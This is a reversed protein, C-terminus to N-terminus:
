FSGINKTWKLADVYANMFRETSITKAIPQAELKGWDGMEFNIIYNLMERIENEEGLLAKKVADTLPLGKLIDVLSRNLIVDMLSFIGTFFYDFVTARHSIGNCLLSMLKARILSQKVMEANESNQFDKLMMLSIWQYVERTGLLNLAQHISSIEYRPSVYASNVLRLLKYSLGLDIEIIESIKRHSPDPLNLEEIIRILNTNIIGIDKSNLVSPRSFFYGQFLQYGLEIASAYQERTEIKEALFRAKNRYKRILASQNELSVSGFEVKVIDIIDLLPLNDQDLVFDDVALIYGKSRFKQCADITAQTAKERELIEVVIRDSPLLNIFDSQVLSKSFNIFAMAGDTLNDIGFVLFSNYILEATALDDDMPVFHNASSQRFLLEYGFIANNRDFIPQRGIHVDM